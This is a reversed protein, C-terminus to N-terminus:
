EYEFLSLEQELDCRLEDADVVVGHNDPTPFVAVKLGDENLRQPWALVFRDVDIAKPRDGAWHGRACAEAFRPHPWVPLYLGDDDEALAWGDDGHLGYLTAHGAARKVFYEYRKPGPLTVLAAFERDTVEWPM